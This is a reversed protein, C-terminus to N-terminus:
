SLHSLPTDAHYCDWKQHCLAMLNSKIDPLSLLVDEHYSSLSHCVQIALRMGLALNNYVNPKSLYSLLMVQITVTQIRTSCTLPHCVQKALLKQNCPQMLYHKMVTLNVSMSTHHTGNQHCTPYCFVQIIDIVCRYLLLRTEPALTCQKLM